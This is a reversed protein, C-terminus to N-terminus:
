YIKNGLFAKLTSKQSVFFLQYDILGGFLLVHMYYARDKQRLSQCIDRGYVKPARGQLSEGSDPFKKGVFSVIAYQM